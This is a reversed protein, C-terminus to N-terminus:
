PLRLSARREKHLLRFSRSSQQAKQRYSYGLCLLCVAGAIIINIGLLFALYDFM